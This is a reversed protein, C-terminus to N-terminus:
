IGRVNNYIINNANQLRHLKMYLRNIRNSYDETFDEPCGCMPDDCINNSLKSLIDLQSKINHIMHFYRVAKYAKKVPVILDSSITTFARKGKDTSYSILTYPKGKKIFSLDFHTYSKSMGSGHNCEARFYLNKTIKM